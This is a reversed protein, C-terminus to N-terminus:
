TSAARVLIRWRAGLVDAAETRGSDGCVSVFRTSRETEVTEDPITYCRYEPTTFGPEHKRPIFTKLQQLQVVSCCQLLRWKYVIYCIRTTQLAPGDGLERGVSDRTGSTLAGRGM